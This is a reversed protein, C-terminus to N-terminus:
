RGGESSYEQGMPPFLLPPGGGTGPTLAQCNPDLKTVPGTPPKTNCAVMSGPPYFELINPRGELRGTV